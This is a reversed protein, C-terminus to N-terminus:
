HHHEVPMMSEVYFEVQIDPRGKFHLTMKVMEEIELPKKLGILMLHLGTRNLLASKRGAVVLGKDLPRMRMIGNTMSMSHIEVREAIETTAGLFRVPKSGLNKIELYAAGVETGASTPTAWPHVIKISGSKYEHAFSIGTMLSTLALGILVQRLFKSTMKSFMRPEKKKFM